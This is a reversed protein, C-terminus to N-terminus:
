LVFFKVSFNCFAFLFNESIRPQNLRAKFLEAWIIHLDIINAGVLPKKKLTSHGYTSTNSCVDLVILLPRLGTPFQTLLFLQSIVLPDMARSSILVPFGMESVKLM